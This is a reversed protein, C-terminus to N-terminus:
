VYDDLSSILGELEEISTEEHKINNNIRSLVGEPMPATTKGAGVQDGTRSGDLRNLFSTLRKAMAELRAGNGATRAEISDLPKQEVLAQSSTGVDRNTSGYVPSGNQTEM